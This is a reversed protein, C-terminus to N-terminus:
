ALGEPVSERVYGSDLLDFSTLEGSAWLDEAELDLDLLRRIQTRGNRRWVVAIEAPRLYGILAPSHTTVMVQKNTARRCEDVFARVIWPHVSNEPEEIFVLPSRPDHLAVFLALGQITGDSVEASNWPRGIGAEDFLLTLRRDSSFDTTVDVLGPLVQQMANRIKQWAPMFHRRLHEVVAPLDEGHRGLIPNPRPTGPRRCELPSLQYISTRGLIRTAERVVYNIRLRELLLETEELPLDDFDFWKAALDFPRIILNAAADAPESLVDVVFDPGDRTLRFYPKSQNEGSVSVEESRVRFDARASRSDARLSFSHNVSLWNDATLLEARDSIPLQPQRGPRRRLERHIPLIEKVQLRASISFQLSQRTRRMRRFAINEFGGKRSVALEVGQSHVEALFDLAEGLNSKGASNAGVLVTFTDPRFEIKYLSRFGQIDIRNIQM